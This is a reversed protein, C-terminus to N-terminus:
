LAYLYYTYPIHYTPSHALLVLVITSFMTMLHESINSAESAAFITMMIAPQVHPQWQLFSLAKAVSWLDIVM